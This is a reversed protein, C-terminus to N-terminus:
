KGVAISYRDRPNVSKGTAERVEIVCCAEGGTPVTTAAPAAGGAVKFRLLEKGSQSRVRVDLTLGPVGGVSVTVNGDADPASVAQWFDDGRLAILGGGVARLCRRPCPSPTTPSTSAARSPPRAAIM